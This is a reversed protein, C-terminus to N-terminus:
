REDLGSAANFALPERSAEDDPGQVSTMYM